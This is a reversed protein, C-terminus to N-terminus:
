KVPYFMPNENRENTLKITYYPCPSLLFQKITECGCTLNDLYYTYM